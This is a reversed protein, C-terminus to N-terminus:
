HPLSPFGQGMGICSSFPDLEEAKSNVGFSWAKKETSVTNFWPSTQTRSLSGGQQNQVSPERRGQHATQLWRATWSCQRSKWSRQAPTRQVIGSNQSEWRGKGYSFNLGSLIALASQMEEAQPIGHQPDHPALRPGQEVHHAAPAKHCRVQHLHSQCTPPAQLHLSPSTRSCLWCLPQIQLAVPYHSNEM